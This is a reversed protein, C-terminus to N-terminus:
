KDPQQNKELANKFDEAQLQYVGWIGVRVPVDVVTNLPLEADELYERGMELIPWQQDIARWRSYEGLKGVLQFQHNEYTGSYRVYCQLLVQCFYGVCAAFLVGTLIVGMRKRGDAIEQRMLIAAVVFATSAVMSFGLWYYGNAVVVTRLFVSLVFSIAICLVAIVALNRAANGLDTAMPNKSHDRHKIEVGEPKCAQLAQYLPYDEMPKRKFRPMRKYEPLELDDEVAFWLAPMLRRKRKEGKPKFEIKQSLPDAVISEIDQWHLRYSLCFFFMDPADFVIGEADVRLRLARFYLYLVVMIVLLPLIKVYLMTLQYAVQFVLGARGETMLVVVTVLVPAVLLVVGLVAILKAQWASFMQETRFVAHSM